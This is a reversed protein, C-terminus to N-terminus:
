DCQTRSKNERWLIKAGHEKECEASESSGRVSLTSTSM